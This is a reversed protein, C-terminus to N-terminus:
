GREGDYVPPPAPVPAPCSRVCKRFYRHPGHRRKVKTGCSGGCGGTVVTTETVTIMGGPAYGYGYYGYGYGPYAPYAPPYPSPPPAYGEEVVEGGPPPPAYGQVYAYDRAGPRYDGTGVYYPVGRDDYAWHEGYRDWDVDPMCDIVTGDRDILLADDYYRIWREDPMPPAFGYMNWHVVNYQPGWWGAPVRAGPDLRRYGQVPQRMGGDRKVVVFRRREGTRVQAPPAPPMPAMGQRVVVPPPPAMPPVPAPMQRVEVRVPGQQTVVPAPPAPRKREWTTGPPPPPADLRAPPVDEWPVPPQVTQALAAAPILAAAAMSLIALKTMM